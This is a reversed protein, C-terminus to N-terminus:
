PTPELREARRAWHCGVREYWATWAERTEYFQARGDKLRAVELLHLETPEGDLWSFLQVLFDGDGVHAVIKGQYEVVRQDGADAFTHFYLGVLAQPGNKIDSKASM